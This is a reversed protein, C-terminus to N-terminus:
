FTCVRGLGAVRRPPARRTQSEFASMSMGREVEARAARVLDACNDTSRRTADLGSHDCKRAQPPPSRGGDGDLHQTAAAMVEARAMLRQERPGITNRAPGVNSINRSVFDVKSNSPQRLSESARLGALMRENQEVMMSAVATVANARRTFAQREEDERAAEEREQQERRMRTSGFGGGPISNSYSRYADM